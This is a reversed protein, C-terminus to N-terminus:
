RLSLNNIKKNQEWIKGNTLIGLKKYGKLENLLELLKANPKISSLLNYIFKNFYSEAIENNIIIDFCELTKILRLCRLQDLTIEGSDHMEWYFEDYYKLTKNFKDYNLKKTIKFDMFTKQNAENWYKNFPFLTNDLDFLILDIEKNM